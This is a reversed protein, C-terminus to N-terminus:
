IGVEVSQYPTSNELRRQWNTKGPEPVGFLQRRNHSAMIQKQVHPALDDFEFQTKMWAHIYSSEIVKRPQDSRNHFRAHWTYGNMLVADGAKVVMKAHHPMAEHSDIDPLPHGMEYRHSGPVFAICAGEKPIDEIYVFLKTMIISDPLYVGKINSLDCHWGSGSDSNPKVIGGRIYRLQVDDGVIAQVIPLWAPHDVLNVFCDNQNLIDRLTNNEEALRFATQVQKLEEGHLAQPIHVYGQADYANRAQQPTMNDM